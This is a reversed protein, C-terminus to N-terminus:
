YCVVPNPTHMPYSRVQDLDYVWFEGYWTVDGATTAGADMDALELFTTAGVSANLVPRPFGPSPQYMRRAVTAANVNIEAGTLVGHIMDGHDTGGFPAMALGAAAQFENVTDDSQFMCGLTKMVYAYSTPFTFRIQVRTEDGAGKAAIAATGRYTRIGRPVHNLEPEPPISWQIVEDGPDVVSVSIVAM